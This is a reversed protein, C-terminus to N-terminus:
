VSDALKKYEDLIPTTDLHAKQIHFAYHACIPHGIVVSNKNTISPGYNNIWYEDFGSMYPTVKAMDEGTWCISNISVQDRWDLVWKNFHLENYTNNKIHDILMNHLEEAFLPNGWGTPDLINYWCMNHWPFNGLRMNINSLVANNIINPFILFYKDRYIDRHDFMQDIFNPELWVVDDDLKLYDTDVEFSDVKYFHHLNHVGDIPKTDPLTIIKADLSSLEKLITEDETNAWVHWEDYSNRQSKLYKSLINISDLRHTITIVTRKRSM